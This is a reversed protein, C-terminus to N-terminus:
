HHTDNEMSGYGCEKKFAEEFEQSISGFKQYSKVKGNPDLIVKIIGTSAGVGIQKIQGTSKENKTSFLKPQSSPNAPYKPNFLAIKGNGEVYSRLCGYHLLKKDNFLYIMENLYVKLGNTDKQLTHANNVDMRSIQLKKTGKQVFIGLMNKDTEVLGRDIEIANLKSYVFKVRRVQKGDVVIPEKLLRGLDEKYREDKEKDHAADDLISADIRKAIDLAREEIARMVPDNTNNAHVYWLKSRIEKDYLKKFSESTLKHRNTLINLGEFSDNISKRLTPVNHRSSYVTDKHSSASLPKRNVWYSVSRVGGFMDRYWLSEEGLSMFREFSEKIYDAIAVGELHPTFKQWIEKLEQESKGYNEKLMRHLRNQWGRSLTALIMADEAHHWNTDRSKSKIGLIRRAKSTTKGPVNRVAIGNKRHESNPFPYFMKLNQAVLAELYSTARLSKTDQVENYIEDMSTALLNKRKKWNILHENFLMEIRNIYAQDQGLWDMPLRNSKQMNTDRHAIVVNYDASLGGLSRPVIHEIDARGEFLDSIKIMNGTYIDMFKQSQLLKIKRAMKRDVSPFEKKNAEIIKDLEREKEKMGKEIEKKISEPLADRASEIVIEDFVGYKWSLDAVRRLVWSALSKVAHNNIPNQYREFLNEKGLHLYKLSKPYKEYNESTDIELIEQIEKENKGEEFHPLADLIYRHSISLTGSVYGKIFAVIEEDPVEIEYKQLIAKIKEYSPKPTKEFQVIQALTTFIELRDPHSIISKMLFPFSKIKDLFFFKAFSRQEKKGKITIEDDKGFIKCENPVSLIKRLEKYTLQKINKGSAIKQEVFAVVRQRDEQTVEYATIKLDALTKYLRYLDYLYSYKPAAYEDTYFACKGFLSPDNEPMVQDTIAEQLAEALENCRDPELPIAGFECQKVIITEIEHEIDERRIMKEYNGHNRYASLKGEQVARHIVQAITEHPYDQKLKKVRNLAAYVQRKEDKEEDDGSIPESLGLELELEYLLDESAISKYGRHKAMHALIAFLEKPSLPRKLADEARLRWKDIIKNEQQVTNAEEYSLIGFDDFVKAVSKVRKKRKENLVRQGKQSSRQKQSSEGSKVDYPADRMMVGSDLVRYSNDAVEDLANFGLSTIGLDLALIKKYMNKRWVFWEM